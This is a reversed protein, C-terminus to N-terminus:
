GGDLEQVTSNVEATRSGRVEMGKEQIEGTPKEERQDLREVVEEILRLNKNEESQCGSSQEADSAM